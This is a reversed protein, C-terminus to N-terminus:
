KATDVSPAVEPDFVLFCAIVIKQTLLILSLQPHQDAWPLPSIYCMSSYFLLAFVELAIYLLIGVGGVAAIVIQGVSWCKDAAFGMSVPEEAFNREPSQCTFAQLLAMVFPLPLFRMLVVFLYGAISYSQQVCANVIIGTSRKDFTLYLLFVGLLFALYPIALIVALFAFYSSPTNVM